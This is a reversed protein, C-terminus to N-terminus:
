PSVVVVAGVHADAADCGGLFQLHSRSTQKQVGGFRLPNGLATMRQASFSNDGMRTYSLNLYPVTREEAM